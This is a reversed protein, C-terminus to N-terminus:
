SPHARGGGPSTRRTDTRTSGTARGLGKVENFEAAWQASDLAPPPASRFQSSSQILFPKVGGAWPTPDLIPQGAANLLPQWHGARPTRCGSLRGSGDTAWERTSCPRPRQTGWRSARGRSPTITSRLRAIGRVGLLAYEPTGRSGPVSGERTRDLRARLARRVGGNRRCRRDVGECGCAQKLLYPRHQKPGIANVADYVAGQVMGM